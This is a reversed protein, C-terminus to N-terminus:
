RQVDRTARLISDANSSPCWSTKLFDWVVMSSTRLLEDSFRLRFEVRNDSKLISPATVKGVIVSVYHYSDRRIPGCYESSRVLTGM